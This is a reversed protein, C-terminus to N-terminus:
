WEGLKPGKMWGIIGAVIAAALAAGFVWYNAQHLNHIFDVASALSPDNEIAPWTRGEGKLALLFWKEQLYILRLAVDLLEHTVVFGAASAGFAGFWRWRADKKEEQAKRLVKDAEAVDKGLDDLMRDLSLAGRWAQHVVNHNSMMSVHSFRYFIRFDILDNRLKAMRGVEEDPRTHDPLKAGDQTLGKLHLYEHFSLTALPLYAPVVAKSLYTRLHEPAVEGARVVLAGGQTTMCHFINDFSQVISRAVESGRVAYEGNFKSALRFVLQQLEREDETEKVRLYAFSFLRKQGASSINSDSTPGGQYLLAAALQPLQFTGLKGKRQIICDDGKRASHLANGDAKESTAKAFVFSKKKSDKKGEATDEVQRRVLADGEAVDESVQM